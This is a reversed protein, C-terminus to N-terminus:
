PLIYLVRGQATVTLPSVVVAGVIILILMSNNENQKRMSDNTIVQLGGRPIHALASESFISFNGYAMYDGADNVPNAVSTAGSSFADSSVWKIAFAGRAHDGISSGVSFSFTLLMRIASATVNHLTFGLDAELPVTLDFIIKGGDTADPLTSSTSVLGWQRARRASRGRSRVTRM